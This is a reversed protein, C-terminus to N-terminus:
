PSVALPEKLRCTQPLSEPEQPPIEGLLLARLKHIAAMKDPPAEQVRNIANTLRWTAEIIRNTAAIVKDPGPSGLHQCRDCMSNEFLIFIM